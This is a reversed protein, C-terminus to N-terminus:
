PPQEGSSQFPRWWYFEDGRLPRFHQRELMQHIRPNTHPLCVVGMYRPRQRQRALGVEMAKTVLRAAARPNKLRLSVALAPFYLYRRSESRTPHHLELDTLAIYGEVQLKNALVFVITEDGENALRHYDRLTTNFLQEGCDFAETRHHGCLRELQLDVRATSM